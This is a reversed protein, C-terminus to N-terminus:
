RLSLGAMMSRMHQMQWRDRHGQRRSVRDQEGARFRLERALESGIFDKDSVRQYRLAFLLKELCRAAPTESGKEISLVIDVLEQMIARDWKEVAACSRRGGERSSIRVDQRSVKPWLMGDTVDIQYVHDAYCDWSQRHSIKIQIKKLYQMYPATNPFAVPAIAFGAPAAFLFTNRSFFMRLAESRIIRCTWLLSPMVLFYSIQEAPLTDPYLNRRRKDDVRDVKIKIEIPRQQVLVMEYVINRLEPPLRLLQTITTQKVAASLQAVRKLVSLYDSAECM